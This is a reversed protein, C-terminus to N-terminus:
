RAILFGGIMGLAVYPAAGSIRRFLGPSGVKKWADAEVNLAVIERRLADSIRQEMIWMSDTAEVRQWLLAKDAELTAVQDQYASVERLHTATLTDLIAGLGDYAELSDRLILANEEFSLSSETARNEADERIEAISDHAQDLSVMLVVYDRVSEELEIELGRREEELLFVKGEAILARERGGAYSNFIIGLFAILGAGLVLKIFYNKTM